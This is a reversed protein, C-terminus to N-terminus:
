RMSIISDSIVSPWADRERSRKNEELCKIFDYDDHVKKEHPSEERGMQILEDLTM